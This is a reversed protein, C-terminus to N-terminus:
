GLDTAIFRAPCLAWTLTLPARAKMREGDVLLGIQRGGGELAMTQGQALEETPGGLFDRNLWAWGHAALDAVNETQVSHAHLGDSEPEIYIASHEGEAGALRIPKGDFTQSLADQVKEIFAGIGGERMNERVEGWATAPGAIIGVLSSFDPGKLVPLFEEPIDGSLAKELVEFIDAEEGHLKKALLNMTGGPLILLPPCDKSGYREIVANATGDGGLSAIIDPPADGPDPLDEGALDIFRDLRAGLAAIKGRVANIGGEDTSGSRSNAILWITKM